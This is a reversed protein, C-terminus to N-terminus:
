QQAVTKYAKLAKALNLAEKFQNDHAASPGETEIAVDPAVGENMINKGSPTYYSATTLRLASGDKLPIVTQVSGKGFTKAGVLVARKHDKLAGAVIESASASGENILLVVPYRDHRSEGSSNFATNQSENRGKISVILAGKPLFKGSVDVASELLGGPNNRLDLVLADMGEAELKKLAEELERGAKQQFEVLRIYGTKGDVLQAERVSAINIIARKVRIDSIKEAKERWVTLTVTTGPDGRMMKVAENMAIDKTSKDDIRIIKDGSRVGAKEAPTGAIPTVVTIVGDKLTIEVGIGGFQGRAEESIEKFEDPDLFSSFDDLSSLMGKLSGYIIKKPDVDTVYDSRIVSVADGFLEVQNYIDDKPPAKAKKADYGCIVLAAAIALMAAAGPM